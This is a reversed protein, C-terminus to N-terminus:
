DGSEIRERFKASNFQPNDREFMRCRDDVLDERYEKEAEHRIIPIADAIQEYHRRQFCPRKPERM